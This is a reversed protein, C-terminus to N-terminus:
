FHTSREMAINFLWLTIYHSGMTKKATVMLLMIQIQGFSPNALLSLRLQVIWRHIQTNKEVNEFSVM